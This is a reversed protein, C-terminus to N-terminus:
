KQYVLETDALRIRDGALLPSSRVRDGNVFTGNLSDLDEIEPQRKHLHIVAHYKSITDDPIVIDNDPLSGITTRQKRIIFVEGQPLPKEFVVRGAPRGRAVLGAAIAVLVLVGALGFYPWLLPAIEPYRTNRAATRGEVAVQVNHNRGDMEGHYRVVYSKNMQERVIKFFPSIYDTTRAQFTKGGTKDTLQELTSLGGEGFRAYRIAFILVPPSTEDGNADQIVSPLSGDSGADNGDTFVIIFSRRPLGTAGRITAVSKQLGDFLVTNLSQDDVELRELQIKAASRAEDFSSVLKAQDAFTVIAVRNGDDIDSMFEFAAAKAHEFAQGKMTRSVDIAIVCTWGRGTESLRKVEIDETEIPSAADVIRFDIRRLDVVPENYKTLARIYLEVYNDDDFGPPGPWIDDVLLQDVEKQGLREDASLASTAGLAFALLLGSAARWRIV